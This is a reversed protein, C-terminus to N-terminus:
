SYLKQIMTPPLHLVLIISRFQHLYRPIWYNRYWLITRSDKGRQIYRTKRQQWHNNHFIDYQTFHIGQTYGWKFILLSIKDMYTSKKNLDSIEETFINLNNEIRSHCPPQTLSFMVMREELILPAQISFEPYITWRSIEHAHNNVVKYTQPVMSYKVCSDNTLSVMM